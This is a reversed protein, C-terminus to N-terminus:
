HSAFSKLPGSNHETARPMADIGDVGLAALCALAATGRLREFVYQTQTLFLRRLQVLHNRIEDLYQQRGSRRRIGPLNMFGWTVLSWVLSIGAEFPWVQRSYVSTDYVWHNIWIHLQYVVIAGLLVQRAWPSMRWIGIATVVFVCGWVLGGIGLYGLPMTLPM